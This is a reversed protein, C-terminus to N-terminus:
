DVRGLARRFVRFRSLKSKAGLVVGLVSGHGKVKVAAAFCYGAKSNYGTKGGLVTRKRRHLLVNTSLYNIGLTKPWVARVYHERTKLVHRLVRNKLAAQLIYAVERATSVNGHDIGVPDVFRTHRLGMLRARRNMRAVLKKENLGVARGLASIAANDSALLAAYLLDRNEFRAGLLLRSRCGGAAVRRDARTIKTVEDLKLHREVIVVAAMLKSLSAIARVEDAQSDILGTRKKLPRFFVAEAKYGENQSAAPARPAALFVAVALIAAILFWLSSTKWRCEFM